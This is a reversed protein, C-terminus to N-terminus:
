NRGGHQNRGGQQSIEPDTAGPRARNLQELQRAVYRALVDVEVNVERGPKLQGLTTHQLTFPVLAVWFGGPELGAVTLSVGDVAVSGKFALFGMLEEPVEFGAELGGAAPRVWRCRGTGDVHGLVLHGGLRSDLRLARELNVVDGAQRRGLTTRVLTERSLDFIVQRGERRTVTLCVGDVAVSEGCALEEGEWPTEVVLEGDGDPRLRRQSIRGMAEVIGTFM